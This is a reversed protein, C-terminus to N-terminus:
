GNSKGKNKALRRKLAGQINAQLNQGNPRPFVGFSNKTAGVSEAKVANSADSNYEM